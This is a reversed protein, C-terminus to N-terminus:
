IGALEQLLAEALLLDESTTIKINAYSGPFIVVRQGLRELLAADDSAQEQEQAAVQRHAQLILPYSFVQPTQVTWLQSRDLTAAIQGQQVQKITEKVPVAATAAQHEQAARLGTELLTPTVLPRTADHIMVWQSDPATEALIDLSRRVSEQRSAGGAVIAAIKHWSEHRCLANAHAIEGAVLVLVITHILPSADFVDITRVLTIRGALPAWLLDHEAIGSAAVIVVATRDQM